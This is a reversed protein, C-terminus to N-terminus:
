KEVPSSWIDLLPALRPDSELVRRVQLMAEGPEYGAVADRLIETDERLRHQVLQLPAGVSDEGLIRVWAVTIAELIELRWYPVRPGAHVMIAGLAVAADMMLEPSACAFPSTLRESVLPVMVKLHKVCYIGLEDLIPRLQQLLLSSVPVNDSLQALCGLVGQRLIRDLSKQKGSAIPIQQDKKPSPSPFRVRVLHLLAPYTVALLPLSESESFAPPVHVLHPLLAQEFVEGMGTRTLLSTPTITLLSHLLSCGRIRSTNSDDDLHALIPPILM